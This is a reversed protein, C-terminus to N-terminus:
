LSVKGVVYQNDSFRLGSFMLTNSGAIFVMDYIEIENSGDFIVNEFGSQIDYLILKNKEQADTGTLVLTNLVRVGMQYSSISTEAFLISPAYRVLSTKNNQGAIAWTAKATPFVFIDKVFAGNGAQRFGQSADSEPIEQVKLEPIRKSTDWSETWSTLKGSSLDYKLVGMPGGDGKGWSGIWLKGDTFQKMFNCMVGNSITSLQGSASIKRLWDTNSSQTGGCIVVDGNKVVYYSSIQINSNILDSSTGNSYKRLVTNGTDTGGLYYINSSSDFQIPPPLIAKSNIGSQFNGFQISNLTSDICSPVGDIANVKILLCPTGGTVLPQKSSLTAFVEDNPAIYFNDVTLSGNILPDSQSGDAELKYFGSTQTQGQPKALAVADSLDFMVQNTDTFNRIEGSSVISRVGSSRFTRASLPNNFSQVSEFKVSSTSLVSGKQYDAKTKGKTMYYTKTDTIAKFSKKISPGQGYKNFQQAQIKVTSNLKVKKITCAGFTVKIICTKTGVKVRINPRPSVGSGNYTNVLKAYVTISALKSSTKKSVIKTIIPKQSPAEPYSAASAPASTLIIAFSTLLATLTKQM